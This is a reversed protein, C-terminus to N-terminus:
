CADTYKCSADYTSLFMPDSTEGFPNVLRQELKQHFCIDPHLCLVQLVQRVNAYQQQSLSTGVPMAAWGVHPLPVLQNATPTKTNTAGDECPDEDMWATESRVAPHNDDGIM